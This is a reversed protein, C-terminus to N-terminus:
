DSLVKEMVIHRPQIGFKSLLAQAAQNDTSTEVRIIDAGRLRVLEEVHTLMRSGIGNRRQEPWVSLDRVVAVSLNFGPIESFTVWIYGAVDDDDLWVEAITRPDTLSDEIEFLFTSPLDTSLWRRRYLEYGQQVVIPSENSFTTACHFELLAQRDQQVDVPRVRLM